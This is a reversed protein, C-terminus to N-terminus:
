KDNGFTNKYEKNAFQYETPNGIDRWYDRDRISFSIVKKNQNILKEFLTPMDFFSDEPIMNLVSPSLVYIGGSVLFKHIPKEEIDVIKQNITHIVGYPIEIKYQLTGMTADAEHALHYQLMYNYNLNTLLDANVVFFSETLQGKMLTLSGATGMRKKEDIYQINVGFKKGDGFYSKIMDAKYNVSIIFDKFSNKSFTDIITELIPKGGVPLLPKPSDKTLPYLRTGLGGAMIVVQNKKVKQSLLNNLEKLGIVKGSSDIIPIQYTNSEISKRVLADNSDSEYSVVPNKTYISEISDSLQYGELLARRIDGDTLVGKLKHHEDVILAIRHTGIEIAHMSEKITANPAVCLNEIDIM